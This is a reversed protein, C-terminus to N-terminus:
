ALEYKDLISADNMVLRKFETLISNRKRRSADTGWKSTDRRGTERELDDFNLKRENILKEAIAYCVQNM